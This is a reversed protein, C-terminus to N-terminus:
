RLQWPIRLSAFHTLVPVTVSLRRRMQSNVSSGSLSAMPTPPTTGLSLPEFLGLDDENDVYNFKDKESKTLYQKTIADISKLDDFGTLKIINEKNDGKLSTLEEVNDSTIIRMQVNMAQLEQYLLKFAYPVKIVSFNRGYKSIPVVNMDGSISNKFKLPGDITPSLFINKNENYIAITGTNNCIAMYYKDGREMMSNYMFGKMGHAIIADRDMEGIRLGGDNARGQVTQRTLATRQGRSRYNIKDKVMHKLRLYYTPGIYIDSELQEGTMGNYMIENSTSSFGHKSLIKGFEKEKLGKNLFATCDGLAGTLLGAKGILVEILHGITMRSPFAHPNVIIDPRLGHETFPMDSEPLVIGITGKQGARSCFKDGIGPIRDNRIQIKAIRNGNESLTIFSKEVYGIQGKKPGVSEDIYINDSIMSDNTKGMLITKENVYTNKEILGNPKLNSYDYGPKLGIVENDDINM